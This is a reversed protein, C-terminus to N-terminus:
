ATRKRRRRLGAAGVALAALGGAGPVASAAETQGATIGGVFNVAYDYITLADGDWGIDFWGFGAADDGVGAFGLYGRVEEGDSTLRDGRSTSVSQSKSTGSLRGAVTASNYNFTTSGGGVQAGFDLMAAWPGDQDGRNGMAIVSASDINKATIRAATIDKVNKSNSKEVHLNLVTFPASYIVGGGYSGSSFVNDREFVIAPGGYHVFDITDGAMVSGTVGLTPIAALMAYRELRNTGDSSTM